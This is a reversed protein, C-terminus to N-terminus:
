LTHARDGRRFGLLPTEIGRTCAIVKFLEGMEAPSMLKQAAAALPAYNRAEAAPTRALLDTIGTNVLFQAQTTYGAIEVGGRAAARAVASFDVHATIDQLGPLVLPDTHAQHRYHCMLTGGTRQPHYYEATPFGYDILLLAGRKISRALTEVLASQEPHVETRYGDPWERSDIAAVLDTSAPRRAWAFGDPRCTVLLEDLTGDRLEVLHVPVADLVENALVVGEFAEPLAELWAMRNALSPIARAISAQQRHRLEASLELIAYRSPLRGEIALARMVEIALAGSGAGLELIEGGALADLIQAVQRAVCQSFLPSLEPATVFDGGPGLKTSGADYYGLGPAYLALSMFREFTIAGGADDIASRIAATVRQSHAQAEPTPQPLHQPQAPLM